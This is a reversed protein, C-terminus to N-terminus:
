ARAGVRVGAAVVRVTVRVAVAVIVVAVGVAVVVACVTLLFALLPYRLRAGGALRPLGLLALQLAGVAQARGNAADQAVDIGALGFNEVLDAVGVHLVTLRASDGLLDASGEHRMLRELLLGGIAELAFRELNRAQQDDVRGAVFAERVQARAAAAQTVDGHQHHVDHMAELLLGDLRDVQELHALCREYDREVLAVANEVPLRHWVAGEAFGELALLLVCLELELLALVRGEERQGLLAEVSRQVPLVGVRTAIDVHHRGRSNGALANGVQEVHQRMERVLHKSLLQPVGGRQLTRHQFDLGDLPKAGGTVDDEDVAADLLAVGHDHTAQLAGDDCLHAGDERRVWHLLHAHLAAVLVVLLDFAGDADLERGVVQLARERARLQVHQAGLVRLLLQAVRDLVLHAGHELAHVLGGVAHAHLRRRKARQLCKQLEQARVVHLNGHAADVDAWDRLLVDHARAHHGRAAQRLESHDQREVDLHLLVRALQCLLHAHADHGRVDDVVQEVLKRGVHLLHLRLLLLLRQTVRGEGAHQADQRRTDKRALVGDHHSHVDDVAYRADARGDAHRRLALDRQPADGGDLALVFRHVPCRAALADGHLDLGGVGGLARAHVAAVEVVRVVKHREDRALADVQEFLM